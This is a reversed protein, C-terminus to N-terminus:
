IQFDVQFHWKLYCLSVSNLIWAWNLICSKIPSNLLATGIRIETEM